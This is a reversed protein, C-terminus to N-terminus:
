VEVEVEVGVWGGGAVMVLAWTADDALLVESQDRFRLRRAEFAARRKVM